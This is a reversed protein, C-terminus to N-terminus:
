AIAAVKSSASIQKSIPNLPFGSEYAGSGYLAKCQSQVTGCQPPMSASSAPADNDFYNCFRQPFGTPLLAQLEMDGNLRMYSSFPPSFRTYSCRIRERPSCYQERRNPALIQEFTCRVHRRLM